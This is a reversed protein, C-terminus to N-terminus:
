FSRLRLVSVRFFHPSFLVFFRAFSCFGNDWRNWDSPVFLFRHTTRLLQSSKCTAHEVWRGGMFKQSTLIVSPVSGVISWLRNLFQFIIALTSKALQEECRIRNAYINRCMKKVKGFWKQYWFIFYFHNMTNRLRTIFNEIRNSLKVIM